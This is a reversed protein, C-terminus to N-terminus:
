LSTELVEWPGAFASEWDIVGLVQYKDDVIINNYGFDGHCLPFSGHDRISLRNALNSISKPFSVVSPIIETAFQGTVARLREDPMGFEVKAAWAEFFQTATNFPGGLGPIRRSLASFPM